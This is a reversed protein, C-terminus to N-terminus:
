SRWEKLTGLLDNFFNVQKKMKGGSVLLGGKKAEQTRMKGSEGLRIIGFEKELIQAENESVKCAIKEGYDLCTLWAYFSEFDLELVFSDFVEVERIYEVVDAQLKMM